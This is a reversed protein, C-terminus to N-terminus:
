FIVINIERTCHMGTCPVDALIRDFKIIQKDKDFLNPFRGADANTILCCPSNLRKAQHVLMYCRKNDIDNAIVCGSPMKGSSTNHLAEIIQATKSGPSACLDICKHHSKVDLLIPPIMSVAEQRSINGSKTEAILFNHLRFLNEARRIDTRTLQLQWALENPYWCLNRPKHADNDDQEDKFSSMYDNFLKDKVIDLMRKSEERFATIRFTTPLNKRMMEVFQSFEEEPCIKQHKYYTEFLENERVITQYPENRRDYPIKNPLNPNEQL